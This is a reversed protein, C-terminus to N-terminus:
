ARLPSHLLSRVAVLDLEAYNLPYPSSVVESAPDLHRTAIRASSDGDGITPDVGSTASRDGSEYLRDDDPRDAAPASLFAM